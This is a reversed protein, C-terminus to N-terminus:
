KITFHKVPFRIMNFDFYASCRNNVEKIFNFFFTGLTLSKSQNQDAVPQTNTVAPNTNTVDVSDPLSFWNLNM